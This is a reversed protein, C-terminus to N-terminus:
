VARDEQGAADFGVFVTGAGFGVGVGGAGLNHDILEPDDGKSGAGRFRRIPTDENVTLSRRARVKGRGSCVWVLSQNRVTLWTPGFYGMPRPISIQKRSM